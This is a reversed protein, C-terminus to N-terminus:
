HSLSYLVTAEVNVGHRFFFSERLILYLSPEAKPDAGNGSWEHTNRKM